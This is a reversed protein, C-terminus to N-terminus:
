KESYGNLQFYEEFTMEGPLFNLYATGMGIPAATTAPISKEACLKFILKRANLAFFDLSDVYCDVGDLFEDTNNTNIGEPWLKIDIEPNIVKAMSVMTDLKKKDYSDVNAGAQRNTNECAFEDFDSLHFQTIGLRVLTLLHSGGVGGMGAIAVRKTKLIAQEEETVWGINRSFALKYNFSKSM